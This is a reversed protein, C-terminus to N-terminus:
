NGWAFFHILFLLSLPISIVWILVSISLVVLLRFRDPRERIKVLLLLARLASLPAIFFAGVGGLFLTLLAMTLWSYASKLPSVARRLYHEATPRNKPINLLLDMGSKVQYLEKTENIYALSPEKKILDRLAIYMEGQAPPFDPKLSYVRSLCVLQEEQSPATKARLYWGLPEDPALDTVKLSSRYAKERKGQQVAQKADELLRSITIQIEDNQM